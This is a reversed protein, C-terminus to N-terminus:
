DLFLDSSKEKTVMGIEAAKKYLTQIAARGKEGLNETFQNVYLNIHQHVVDESISQSHKLIYDKTKEPHEWALNLSKRLASDVEKQIDKSINRKIAIAGLPIPCHTETEWWEGLDAVKEFGRKEYTFREEHIIVGLAHKGAELEPIIRDYRMPIPTFNKKLYLSLLLNATTKMGPVLIPQGTLEPMLVGKKKILIPGCNQGLASGCNLLIYKDMVSFYAAFSLKTIDYKGTEASKNLEEM